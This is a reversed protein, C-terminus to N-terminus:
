IGWEDQEDRDNIGSKYGAAYYLTSNDDNLVPNFERDMRGDHYGEAFIYMDAPIDM